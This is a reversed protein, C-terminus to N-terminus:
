FSKAFDICIVDIQRQDNIALSFDHITEILQTVTSLNSRFGHQHPYLLQNEELFIIIHKAINYELLKCSVSTLSVPRYNNM